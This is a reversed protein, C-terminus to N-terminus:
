EWWRLTSLQCRHDEGVEIEISVVPLDSYATHVIQIMSHARNTHGHEDSSPDSHSLLMQLWCVTPMALIDAESHQHCMWQLSPVKGTNIAGGSRCPLSTVNM